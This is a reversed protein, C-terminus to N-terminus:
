KIYAKGLVRLDIYEKVKDPHSTLVIKAAELQLKGDRQTNMILKPGTKGVVTIEFTTVGVEFHDIPVGIISEFANAVEIVLSIFSTSAVNDNMKILIGSSDIVLPVAYEKDPKMIANGDMGVIFKDEGSQWIVAVNKEAVDIKISNPVGRYIAVDSILPSVDKVKAAVKATPYRWLNINTPVVASVKESGVNVNGAIIVESVAFIPSFLAWAFLGLSLLIIVIRMLPRIISPKKEIVKDTLGSMKPHKRIAGRNITKKIKPTPQSILRM